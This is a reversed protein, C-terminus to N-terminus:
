NYQYLKDEESDIDDDFPSTGDLGSKDAKVYQGTVNKHPKSCARHLAFPVRRVKWLTSVM